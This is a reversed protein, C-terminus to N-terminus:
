LKKHRCCSCTKPYPYLIFNLLILVYTNWHWTACERCWFAHSCGCEYSLQSFKSYSPYQLSLTYPHSNFKMIQTDQQKGLVSLSKKLWLQRGDQIKVDKTIHLSIKVLQMANTMWLFMYRSTFKTYKQYKSASILFNGKKAQKETNERPAVKRCLNSWIEFVTGYILKTYICITLPYNEPESQHIKHEHTYFESRYFFKVNGGVGFDSNKSIM